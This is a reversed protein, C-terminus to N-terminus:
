EWSGAEAPHKGVHQGGGGGVAQLTCAPPGQALGQGCSKVTWAQLKAWDTSNELLFPLRSVLSASQKKIDWQISADQDGETLSNVFNMVHVAPWGHVCLSFMLYQYKELNDLMETQYFFESTPSLNKSHNCIETHSFFYIPYAAADM